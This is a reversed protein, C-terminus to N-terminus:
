DLRLMAVLKPRLAVGVEEREGVGLSSQASGDAGLMGEGCLTPGGFSLDPHPHPQVRPLWLPVSVVVDANVEIAHGADGRGAVAPLDEGRTLGPGQGTVVAVSHIEQVQSEMPELVE